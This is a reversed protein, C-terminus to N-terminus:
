AIKGLRRAIRIAANASAEVGAAEVVIDAGRGQTLTLIEEEWGKDEVNLTKFGLERAVEFRLKEDKKTGTIIVEAAGAAKALMASLIGIPGAGEVVVTDAAKIGTNLILCDIVIALPECLAAEEYSVNDPIRHLLKVPMKIYEAFAGDIGWGIARKNSCIQINGSRCFFCVGCSKTHPEAVVRDGKQWSKVNEGVEVIEGAFEHGMIVPPWYLMKDQWIHIDTGCIGAAKVKILVEDPSYAPVPVDRVEIFGKGKRTKVLAQM